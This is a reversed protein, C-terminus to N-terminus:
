KAPEVPEAWFDIVRVQATKPLAHSAFAKHAPHAAYQALGDESDFTLCFAHTFGADHKEPSNNTGWEFARVSKIKAPLAAFEQEIIRVDAAAVDDDFQFFVLHKLGKAVEAPTPTAWYDVVFVKELHPRLTAGFAKHEPHPLYIARGAEDAFTLLFCHSFGGSMAQPNTSTGWQFDKITEIKAPLAAFADVVNRVEDARATDKFKFFVAHRLVREAKSQQSAPPQTSPQQANGHTATTTMAIVFGCTSFFHSWSSRLVRHAANHSKSSINV